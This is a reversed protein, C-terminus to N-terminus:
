VTQQELVKLYQELYAKIEDMAGQYKEESKYLWPDVVPEYKGTAAESLTVFKKKFPLPTLFKHSKTMGIIVDAEKFLNWDYKRYVFGPKHAAVEAETFGEKLLAKATRPDMEEMPTMVASSKVEVNGKLVPSNEAMRRFMYECYPSRCVNQSCVFLLKM